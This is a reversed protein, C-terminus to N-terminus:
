LDDSAGHGASSLETRPDDAARDSAPWVACPAKQLMYQLAELPVAPLVPTREAPQLASAAGHSAYPFPAACLVGRVSINGSSRQRILQLEIFAGFDLAQEPYQRQRLAALLVLLSYDHGTYLWTRGVGGEQYSLLDAVAQQLLPMGLAGGRTHALFRQEWVFCACRSVFRAHRLSLRQMLACHPPAQPPHWHPQWASGCGAYLAGTALLRQNSAHHLECQLLEHLYTTLWVAQEATWASGSSVDSHAVAAAVHGSGSAVHVAGDTALRWIDQLLGGHLRAMRAIADGHRVEHSVWQKFDGRQGWLQFRDDDSPDMQAATAHSHAQLMAKGSRRM